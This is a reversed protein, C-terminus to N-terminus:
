FTKWKFKNLFNVLGSIVFIFFFPKLLLPETMLSFVILIFFLRKKKEIITQRYIMWLLFITAPFGATALFFMISNTAGKEISDFSISEIWFNYDVRSRVEIYQQDDLGIGTLPYDAAILIPQVLDFFRVQFSTSGEGLVKDTINISTISYLGLIFFAFLPILFVNKKVITISYYLFQLMMVILGTTSFTSLIALTTFSVIWFKFKKVFLAIFLLLNLFIQLVGPEWFLGQNRVM